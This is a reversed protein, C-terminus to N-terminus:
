SYVINKYCRVNNVQTWNTWHKWSNKVTLSKTVFQYYIECYKTPPKKNKSHLMGHIKLNKSSGQIIWKRCIGWRSLHFAALGYVRVKSIYIVTTVSFKIMYTFCIFVNYWKIHVNTKFSKNLLQNKVASLYSPKRMRNKKWDLHFSRHLAIVVNGNIIYRMKAYVVM